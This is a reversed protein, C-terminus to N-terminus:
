ENVAISANALMRTKWLDGLVMTQERSVPTLEAILIALQKFAENLKAYRVTQDGKPPYYTFLQEIRKLVDEKTYEM